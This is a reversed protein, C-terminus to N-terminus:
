RDPAETKLVADVPPTETLLGFVRQWIYESSLAALRCIENNWHCMCTNLITCCPSRFLCISREGPELFVFKTLSSRSIIFFPKHSAKQVGQNTSKEIQTRTRPAIFCGIIDYLFRGSACATFEVCSFMSHEDYKDIKPQFPLFEWVIEGARRGNIM